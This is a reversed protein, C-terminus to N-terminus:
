WFRKKFRRNVKFTNDNSYRSKIPTESLDKEEVMNQPLEKLFRSPDNYRFTGFLMRSESYTLYLQEMARTIGVYCLRREEDISTDEEARQSPFIAEEMAVIFVIPFELGKASHLTMVNIANDTVSREDSDTYLPIETLTDILSKEASTVSLIEMVNDEKDQWDSPFEAKLHDLYGNDHLVANLAGSMTEANRLINLSYEALTVAGSKAKGKLDIEGNAISNWIEEASFDKMKSTYEALKELNKEGLGFRYIGAVRALAVNDLPNVALRLCSIVDKIELRDYFALGKVIRYPINHEILATEISRSLANMRYLIAFESYAFGHRTVLEDIRRAIWESEDDSSSFKVIHVAEGDERVPVLDKPIRQTNNQIVGNAASLIKGTSRYNQSLITAIGGFDKQFNMLFQMKSGRWAYISQDPDGVACIHNKDGVLIRLLFYQPANIEQYEDVLIWELRSQERERLEQSTALLHLPMMLLDDFDFAAASRLLRQYESYIRHESESIHTPELTVPSAAVKIKSITELASAPSLTGHRDKTDSLGLSNLIRSMLSKSDSRDYVVFPYKYGAEELFSSNRHLFRVGWSHFTSLELGNLNEGLLREAREKMERAAKNTFTLALIKWPAVHLENVLYAIKSTLVRTKGSGAGALVFQNSDCQLVAERQEENLNELLNRM